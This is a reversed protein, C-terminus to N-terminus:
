SRGGGEERGASKRTKGELISVPQDGKREGELAQSFYRWLNEYGREAYSVGGGAHRTLGDKEEVWDSGLYRGGRRYTGRRGETGL